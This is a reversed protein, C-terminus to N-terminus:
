RVRYIEEEFNGRWVTLSARRQETQSVLLAQEDGKKWELKVLDGGRRGDAKERVEATPLGYRPKLAAADRSEPAPAYDWQLATRTVTAM